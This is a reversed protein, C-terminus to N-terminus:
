IDYIQVAGRGPEGRREFANRPNSVQQVHIYLMTSRTTDTINIYYKLIIQFYGEGRGTCQLTEIARLDLIWNDFIHKQAKSCSTKLSTDCLVDNEFHSPNLAQMLNHDEAKYGMYQVLWLPLIM